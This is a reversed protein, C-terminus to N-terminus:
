NIEDHKDKRAKRTDQGKRKEQKKEDQRDTRAKQCYIRSCYQVHVSAFLHADRVTVRLISCCKVAHGTTQYRIV